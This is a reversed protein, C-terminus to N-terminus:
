RGILYVTEYHGRQVEQAAEALPKKNCTRGSGLLIYSVGILLGGEVLQLSSSYPGKCEPKQERRTQIVLWKIMPHLWTPWTHNTQWFDMGATRSQKRKSEPRKRVSSWWSEKQIKCDRHSCVSDQTKLYRRFEFLWLFLVSYNLWKCKLYSATDVQM